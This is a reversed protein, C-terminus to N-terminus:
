SICIRFYQSSYEKTVLQVHESSQLIPYEFVERIIAEMLKKEPQQEDKVVDYMDIIKAGNQRAKMASEAFISLARCNKFKIDETNAHAFSAFFITLIAIKLSKRFNFGM